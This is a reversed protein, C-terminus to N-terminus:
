DNDVVENDSIGPTSLPYLEKFCDLCIGHSFEAGSRQGIYADLEQWHGEDDRIKKCNACIPLIGRLMSIEQLAERQRAMVRCVIIGFVLFCVLVLSRTYLDHRPVDIILLDWFPATHIFFYTLVSDVIWTVLGLILAATVVKDEPRM